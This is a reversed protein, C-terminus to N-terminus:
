LQMPRSNKKKKQFPLTTLKKKKRSLATAKKKRAHTGERAEKERERGGVYRNKISNESRGKLMKSIATGRKGRVWERLILAEEWPQWNGFVLGPALFHLYRERCSANARKGEMGMEKAVEKWPLGKPLCSDKPIETLDDHGEIRSRWFNNLVKLVAARLKADLSDNWVPM